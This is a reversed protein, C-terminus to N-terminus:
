INEMPRLGNEPGGDKVIPLASETNVYDPAEAQCIVGLLLAMAMLLVVLRKM